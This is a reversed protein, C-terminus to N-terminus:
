SRSESDDFYPFARHGTEFSNQYHAALNELGTPEAISINQGLRVPGEAPSVKRGAAITALERILADQGKAVLAATTAAFGDQSSLLSVANEL